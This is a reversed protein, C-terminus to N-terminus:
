LWPETEFPMVFGQYLEPFTLTGSWEQTSFRVLSFDSKAHNYLGKAQLYFAQMPSEANSNFDWASMFADWFTPTAHDFEMDLAQGIKAYENILPMDGATRAAGVRFLNRIRYRMVVETAYNSSMVFVSTSPFFGQYLITATHTGGGRDSNKQLLRYYQEAPNPITFSIYDHNVGSTTGTQLTFEGVATPSTFSTNDDSQVTIKTQDVGRADYSICCYATSGAIGLTTTAPFVIKYYEDSAGDNPKWGTALNDERANDVAYGTATSSATITPASGIVNLITKSRNFFIPDVISM